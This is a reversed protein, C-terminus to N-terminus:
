CTAHGSLAQTHSQRVPEPQALVARGCKYLLVFLVV